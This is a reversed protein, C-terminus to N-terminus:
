LTLKRGRAAQSAARAGTQLSISVRKGRKMKELHFKGVVTQM